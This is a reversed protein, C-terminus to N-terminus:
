EIREPKYISKKRSDISLNPQLMAATGTVDGTTRVVRVPVIYKRVRPDTEYVQPRFM